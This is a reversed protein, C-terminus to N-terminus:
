SQVFGSICSEIINVYKNNRNADTVYIEKDACFMQGGWEASSNFDVQVFDILPVVFLGLWTIM